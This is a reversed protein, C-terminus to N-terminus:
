RFARDTYKALITRNILRWSPTTVTGSDSRRFTARLFIEKKSSSRSGDSARTSASEEFSFEGWHFVWYAEEPDIGTARSVLEALHRADDLTSRGENEALEDLLIVYTRKEGPEAHYIRLRCMSEQAYGTWTFLTDSVMQAQASPICLIGLFATALLAIVVRM